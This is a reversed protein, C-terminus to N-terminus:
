RLAFHPRKKDHSQGLVIAGSCMVCVSLFLSLAAKLSRWTKLEADVDDAAAILEAGGTQSQKEILKVNVSHFSV